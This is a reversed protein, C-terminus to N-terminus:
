ALPSALPILLEVTRSLRHPVIITYGAHQHQFSSFYRSETENTGEAILLIVPNTKRHANNRKKTDFRRAM